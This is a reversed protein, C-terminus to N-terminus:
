CQRRKRFWRSHSLSLYSASYAAHTSRTDHFIEDNVANRETPNPARSNYIVSSQSTCYGEAHRGEGDM